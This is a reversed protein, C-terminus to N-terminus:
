NPLNLSLCVKDIQSQSKYNNVNSKKIKQFYQRYFPNLGNINLRKKIDTIIKNVIESFFKLKIEASYNKLFIETQNSKLKLSLSQLSNKIKM